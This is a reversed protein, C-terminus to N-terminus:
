DSIAATSEDLVNGIDDVGSAAPNQSPVVLANLRERHYDREKTLQMLRDTGKAGSMQTRTDITGVESLNATKVILDAIQVELIGLRGKHLAIADDIADSM